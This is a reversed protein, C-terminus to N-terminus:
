CIIFLLRGDMKVFFKNNTDNAGLGQGTTRQWFKSASEGRLLM